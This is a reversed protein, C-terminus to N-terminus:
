FCTEYWDEFKLEGKFDAKVSGQELDEVNEIIKLEVFMQKLNAEIQLIRKELDMHKDDDMTYFPYDKVKQCM